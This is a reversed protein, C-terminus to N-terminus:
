HSGAPVFDKHPPAPLTAVPCFKQVSIVKDNEDMFFVFAQCEELGLQDAQAGMQSAFLSIAPEHDFTLAFKTGPNKAFDAANDLAKGVPQNGFRSLDEAMYRLIEGVTKGEAKLHAYMNSHSSGAPAPSKKVSAELTLRADTIIQSASTVLFNTLLSRPFTSCFYTPSSFKESLCAVLEAYDERVDQCLQVGESTLTRTENPGDQVSHSHRGRVVCRVANDPITIQTKAQSAM